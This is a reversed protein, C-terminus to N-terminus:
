PYFEVGLVTHKSAGTVTPINGYIKKDYAFALWSFAMAEFANNNMNLANITDLEHETLKQKLKKYCHTNHIGGGCLYVFSKPSLKNIQEAVTQATLEILTAQVDVAEIVVENLAQTLWELSFYERGTSKPAPLTFYPDALLRKLLSQNVQGQQAWQGNEDFRQKTHILSWADLLANAPGTDFGIVAQRKDAPLFTLNAIGGLNVIFTDADRKDFLYQHFAPVLPAGQGGLVVDKTRFDGIVRIQTLCALTQSCGIQMTFPHTIEDTKNPRHRVTQGHNGVAIIDSHKLNQTILFDSIVKAFCHALERGLCGIKDIENDTPQYLATIRHHLEDDYPQYVHAVLEPKGSSFDVMAIDVGDASTGSMLGLYYRATSM